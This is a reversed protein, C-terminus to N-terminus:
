WSMVFRHTKGGQKFVCEKERCKAEKGVIMSFIGGIYGELNRCYFPHGPYDSVIEFVMKHNKKDLEKVKLEGPHYKKWVKNANKAMIEPSILFKSLFKRVYSFTVMERGVARLREEDYDFLKTEVVLFAMFLSYSMVREKKLKSIDFDYGLRQMEKEIKEVGEKGYDKEIVSLHELLGKVFFSAGKNKNIYKKDEKSLTVM